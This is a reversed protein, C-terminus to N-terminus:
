DCDGRLVDEHSIHGLRELMDRAERDGPCEALVERWLRVAGALTVVPRREPIASRWVRGTSSEPFDGPIRHVVGRTARNDKSRPQDHDRSEVLRDLQAPPDLAPVLGLQLEERPM